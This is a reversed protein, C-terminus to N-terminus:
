KEADPQQSPHAAKFAPLQTLSDYLRKITPYDELPINNRVANFCQPVLLCDAMSVTDGVCFTGARKALLRELGAFTTTLWHKGWAAKAADGAAKEPFLSAVHNLVRLNGVPQIDDAIIQCVERVLARQYPDAPLLPTYEPGRRTEELYEIIAVSQSLVHGDIELTPVERMPNLATYEAKFQQGGDKLLHVIRYEYAIGKLSLAIRVRYSCSSRWYNHLVPLSDTRAKKAEGENSSMTTTIQIIIPFENKM